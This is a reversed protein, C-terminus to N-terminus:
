ARYPRQRRDPVSAPIPQQEHQHTQQSCHDLSRKWRYSKHTIRFAFMTIKPETMGATLMDFQTNWLLHGFDSGPRLRRNGETSRNHIHNEAPLPAPSMAMKGMPSPQRAAVPGSPASGRYQCDRLAPKVVPAPIECEDKAGRVRPRRAARRPETRRSSQQHKVM